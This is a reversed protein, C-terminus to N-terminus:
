IHKIVSHIGMNDYIKYMVLLYVNSSKYEKNRTDWGLIGVFVKELSDLSANRISRDCTGILKSLYIIHEVEPYMQYVEELNFREDKQVM